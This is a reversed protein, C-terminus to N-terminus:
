QPTVQPRHGRAARPGAPLGPERGQLARGQNDAPVELDFLRLITPAIDLLRMGEVHGAAPVGAGAMICLGDRAHNADDPGTDNEFTWTRGDDSRASAWM